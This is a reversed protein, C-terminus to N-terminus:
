RAALRSERVAADLYKLPALGGPPYGPRSAVREILPVLQTDPNLGDRLWAALPEFGGSWRESDIRVARMMRNATDVLRWRMLLPHQVGDKDEWEDVFKALREAL